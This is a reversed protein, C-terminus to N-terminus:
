HGCLGIDLSMFSGEVFTLLGSGADLSGIKTSDNVLLDVTSPSGTWALALKSTAETLKAAYDGNALRDGTLSVVTRPVGAVLTRYQLTLQKVASAAIETANTSTGLTFELAPRNSATLSGAFSASLQFSNSPTRPQTADFAGYGTLTAAFSGKLFETSGASGLNRLAGRM